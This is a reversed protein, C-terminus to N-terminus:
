NAIVINAIWIIIWGIALIAYYFGFAAHTPVLVCTRGAQEIGLKILSAGYLNEIAIARSRFGQLYAQLQRENNLGMLAVLFAIISLASGAPDLSLLRDGIITLAAGQIAAFMALDQRRMTSLHRWWEHAQQYEVEPSVYNDAGSSETPLHM